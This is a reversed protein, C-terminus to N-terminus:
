AKAIEGVIHFSIHFIDESSDIKGSITQWKKDTKKSKHLKSQKYFLFTDM